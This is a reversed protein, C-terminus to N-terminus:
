LKYRSAVWFIGSVTGVTFLLKLILITAFAKSDIKM